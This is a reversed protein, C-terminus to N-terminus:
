PTVVYGFEQCIRVTEKALPAANAGGAGAYELLVAFAIRPKDRPAFGAFWAHDGQRVAQDDATIRGDKNSDIRMPPVEATGTKGCVDLDLPQGLRWHRWATGGRSHIVRYMGQKVARIHQLAIPLERRTQPPVAEDGTQRILRPSLYVGDRAITATAAAVQLCSASFIGQGISLFWKDAKQWTRNRRRRLYEESAVVGSREEALGTGPKTGYGFLGLWYSLKPATLRTALKHFFVNSSRQIAEIVAFTGIAHDRHKKQGDSGIYLYGPCEFTTETTIAGTALGALAVLPKVTSGPAYCSMIARHYLPLNIVDRVLHQYNERYTNLDFTPWSVMALIDGSAVEIVVISGTHGSEALLTTLRRQLEIDITLWVDGGPEAPVEETVEDIREFRRYGRRARLLPQRSTPEAQSRHECLREVGTAGITDGALYNSRMRTLWGAQDPTLNYQEVDERFVPRTVGIIHCATKGYPYQRRHSPTIHVGVTKDLLSRLASAQAEDLGTVVAHPMYRERIDRGVAREMREVRRRIRAVAAPLDIDFEAAVQGALAWSFEARRQYLTEAWTLDRDSDDNLDEARMIARQQKRQWRPDRTILGYDLCLDFCPKDQALILGNRDLIRGRSGPLLQVSQLSREAERRYEDGHIVQLSVLRVLLVVFSAAFLGLLIKLRLKYM